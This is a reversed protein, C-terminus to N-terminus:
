AAPAAPEPETPDPETPDSALPTAPLTFVFRAGGTHEPDLWIQGGHHEVIKRCMALGIGTGGYADGRAHLRQFIVFIKEGFEPPVGIGNDTVAFRWRDGDAEVTVRVHPVRDPSAFKLANGILNQWLMTLLTPDGAVTPLPDREVTAGTREVRDALDTVAQDCVRDLDVPESDDYVRGVRSFALLDNILVQMRQAGDVAFAVYQRGRDDLLEGYRRELLQCFSAIKRLPEQLDHSAVYAFQELEGNSRKLDAAQEELQARATNSFALEQVIQRRMGEVDGALATMDAPGDVTIPRDYAGASVTRTADGLQGLPRLVGRRVLSTVLMGALLFTALMLGFVTNQWSQAAAVEARIDTRAQALRSDLTGLATRVDDFVTKGGNVAPEPAAERGGLAIADIVPVAVYNRWTRAHTEAASVAALDATRGKLLGRLEGLAANEAEIGSTYPGLFTQDGTLVYGRLGTEQDLMAGRLKQGAIRAPSIRDTLLDSVAATRRMALGGAVTAALLVVALVGFGVSMLGSTPYRRWGRTAM